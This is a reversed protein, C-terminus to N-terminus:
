FSPCSRPQLANPFKLSIMLLLMGIQRLLFINLLHTSGAIIYSDSVHAMVLFFPISSLVIHLTGHKSYRLTVPLCKLQDSFWVLTAYMICYILLFFFLFPPPAPWRALVDSFLHVLRTLSHLGHNYTRSRPLCFSLHLPSSVFNM